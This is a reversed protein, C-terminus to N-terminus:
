SSFLENFVAQIGEERLRIREAKERREYEERAWAMQARLVFSHLESMPYEAMISDQVGGHVGSLLDNHGYTHFEILTPSCIYADVDYYTWVKVGHEGVPDYKGYKETIAERNALVYLRFLTIAEYEPMKYPFLPVIFKNTNGDTM